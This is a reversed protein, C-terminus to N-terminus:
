SKRGITYYENVRKLISNVLLKANKRNEAFLVHINDYMQFEVLMKLMYKNTVKITSWKDEPIDSGNPFDLLDQLSFELVLFKFPFKKMREIESMFRYKDKGLNIALESLRGKREICLKDELGEISYDGTELKRVVMGNCSTYRGKFAEFTFGDQERSDKIVTYPPAKDVM